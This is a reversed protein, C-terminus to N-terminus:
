KRLEPDCFYKGALVKKRMMSLHYIDSPALVAEVGSINADHCQFQVHVQAPKRDIMEFSVEPGTNKMSLRTKLSGGVDGHRSIEHVIWTLTAKEANWEVSPESNVAEVEGSVTTTFTVNVLPSSMKSETNLRYDIRIDTHMPEFKWYATLFLPPQSNAPAEPHLEYRVVETNYFSSNPRQQAQSNLWEGLLSRDFSFKYLSNDSKPDSSPDILQKNPQVTKISEANKLCFQLPEFEAQAATLLPISSAAFSIMVTGFIRQVNQSSAGKFWVHSYENVAMALPIRQENITAQLLNGTSQSLNFTSEGLSNNSECPALNFSSNWADGFSSTSEKRNVAAGFHGSSTSFLQNHTPTNSRPRARAMSMNSNYGMSVSFAPPVNSAAYDSENFVSRFRGDATHNTRLPARLTAASMSQSFLPPATSVGASWPDKDFTSSRTLNIHGIADRLEDVSANMHVAKDAPRITLARIKSQQLDDEDEESSSCSSWHTEDAQSIVDGRITYGEEDIKACGEMLSDITPAGNLQKDESKSSSATSHADDTCFSTRPPGHSDVDTSKRSRRRDLAFKLISAANSPPTDALEDISSQSVTKKRKPMFLSLKKPVTTKESTATTSTKREFDEQSFPSPPKAATSSVHNPPGFDMMLLDGDIKKTSENQVVGSSSCSSPVSSGSIFDLLEKHPVTQESHYIPPNEVEEFTVQPPRETGTGKLNVFRSLCDEVNVQQLSERFQAAVQQSAMTMEQFHGAYLLVFQQLTAYLSRDYQQFRRCAEALKIEFDHRVMEYKEVYTKYEERARSAKTELKAIEKASPAAEKRARELEGHRTQYTEKAKQLCTTTTQMLNVAEAVSQQKMEKRSKGMEEKYKQVERSLDQMNKVLMVHIESLLELTGKTLIWVPEINSGNSIFSNIRQVSRNITKVYEDEMSMREKVFQSVENFADDGKKLNDYLVQYGHHKEGWFHDGYQVGEVAATM